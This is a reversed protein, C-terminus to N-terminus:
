IRSSLWSSFSFSLAASGLLPPRKLRETTVRIIDSQMVQWRNIRRKRRIVFLSGRHCAGFLDEDGQVGKTLTVM